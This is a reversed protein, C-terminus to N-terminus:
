LERMMEPWWITADSILVDARYLAREINRGRGKRLLDAVANTDTFPLTLVDEFVSEARLAEARARRILQILRDNELEARIIAPMLQRKLVPGVALVLTKMRGESGNEM